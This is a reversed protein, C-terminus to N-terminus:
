YKFFEKMKLLFFEKKRRSVEVPFDNSLIVVGGEGRQYEKIHTMNILYSKHVRIFGSNELLSEYEHIPRSACIPAPSNATQFNTYNGSGECYIIDELQVVQFGKFSPICIRPKHQRDRQRANHLFTELPLHGAKVTIRKAIRQVAMRLLQEDVPKLLYDMASFHFAQEMYNNHATIFVVEFDVNPLERLLEFGNKGPMAIDLFVLEPDLQRIKQDAEEANECLAMIEVDPCHAQLMKQLSSLGRAEDDVLITKIPMM